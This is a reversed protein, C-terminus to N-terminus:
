DLEILQHKLEWVDIESYLRALAPEPYASIFEAASFGREQLDDGPGIHSCVREIQRGAIERRIGASLRLREALKRVQYLMRSGSTRVKGVTRADEAARASLDSIRSEIMGALGELLELVRAAGQEVPFRGLLAASGQLVDPLELGYKAMIRTSRQDVITASVRPWLLPKVRGAAAFLRGTSAMRALDEPGVVEAADRLCLRVALAAAVGENELGRDGSGSAEAQSQSAGDPAQELLAAAQRRLEGFERTASLRRGVAAEGVPVIGFEGVLRTLVQIVQKNYLDIKSSLESRERFNNTLITGSGYGQRGASRMGGEASSRNMEAPDTKLGKEDRLWLIPVAAVGERSIETALKIATLCKLLPALSATFDGAAASAGVVVAARSELKGLNESWQDSSVLAPVEERIAQCVAACLLTQRSAAKCRSLLTEKEPYDATIPGPASDGEVFKLYAPPFGPLARLNVYKM